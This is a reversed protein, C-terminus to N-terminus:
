GQEELFAAVHGVFTESCEIQLMHPAGPIVVLRAGPVAEAVARAALVPTGLDVEGAIVLTPIALKPLRDLADHTAIVRWGADWQEPDDALLRARVKAVAPDGMFSATFWRQLTTDVVASMGRELSAQGRAAVAERAEPPIRAACACVILRDVRDPFRIALEQAIMGGFSLGLVAAKEIALADLTQKVAEVYATMTAEPAAPSRGHGPLDFAFVRRTAACLEILGPWFSHDLGIPHLLVLPEGQGREIHHLAALALSRERM